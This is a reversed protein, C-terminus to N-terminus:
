EDKKRVISAVDFYVHTGEDDKEEHVRILEKGFKGLKNAKRAIYDLDAIGLYGQYTIAHEHRM